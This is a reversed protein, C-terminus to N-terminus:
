EFHKNKLFRIRFMQKEEEKTNPFEISESIGRLPAKIFQDIVGCWRFFMTKRKDIITFGARRAFIIAMLATMLAGLSDVITKANIAFKIDPNAFSISLIASTLITLALKPLVIFFSEMTENMEYRIKEGSTGVVLIRNANIQPVYYKRRQLRRLM